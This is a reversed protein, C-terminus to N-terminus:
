PSNETLAQHDKIVRVAIAPHICTKPTNNGQKTYLRDIKIILIGLYINNVPVETCVAM